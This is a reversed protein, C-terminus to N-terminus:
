CPQSSFPTQDSSKLRAAAEQVRHLVYYITRARLQVLKQGVIQEVFGPTLAIIDDLRADALGRCLIVALARTLTQVQCGLSVALRVRGGELRLHIGVTDSCENDKRVDEFEFLEGPRPSHQEAADALAILGDRREAETLSEFHQIIEQLRPPHM